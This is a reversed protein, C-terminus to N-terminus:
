VNFAIFLSSFVSSSFYMFLAICRLPSLFTPRIYFCFTSQFHSSLLFVIASTEQATYTKKQQPRIHRSLSSRSLYSNFFGSEEEGRGM